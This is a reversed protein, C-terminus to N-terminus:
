KKQQPSSMGLWLVLQLHRLKSCPKTLIDATNYQGPVYKLVVENKEIQERLYHYRIGIHKTRTREIYSSGFCIAAKSDSWIVTPAAQKEPSLEIILKRLWTVERAAESLAIYEAEMSSMAVCDQRISRYLVPAGALYFVMGSISHRDDITRGWDADAFCVLPKETRQFVIGLHVTGKLYRLVRKAAQWHEKRPNVNFQALFNVIFSIDPRTASALYTLCGILERYPVDKMETIEEISPESGTKTLKISPDAPMGLSNSDEMGYQKLLKRVYNAQSMYLKNNEYLFDIGLLYKLPGLYRIDFSKHLIDRLAQRVRENQACTFVDDVFLVQWGTGFEFTKYYVCADAQCRTMGNSIMKENFKKNWQRASQKLGYVGKKLKCVLHEKGHVVFGEPQSMFIEESLDSNLFASNVDYQDIIWGREVAMAIVTRITAIGAVPSYTEFYDIGYQQTYGKAVLRAKYKDVTGDSLTKIRLVWKSEVPTRGPPLESLEWTGLKIQSDYEAQLAKKWLEADESNIAEEYSKPTQLHPLKPKAKLVNSVGTKALQTIPMIGLEKAKKRTLMGQYEVNSNETSVEATAISRQGQNEETVSEEGSHSDENPAIIDEMPTRPRNVETDDKAVTDDGAVEENEKVEETHGEDTLFLDSIDIKDKDVLKYASGNYEEWFVVNRAIQVKQKTLNFIRYGKTNSEYGLMIAPEAQPQLKHRLQKPIQTFCLSGFVKLHRLSPKRGTWLEYPTVAPNAKSTCRNRLYVATNCAEAWFRMPLKASILAARVMTLSTRNFREAVGNQPASFAVTRQHIIGKEQLYNSMQNNCYELGRDTRITKIKCGTQNEVLVQFNKFVEFVESKYKLYYVYVYRTYDDIFSLLYRKNGLSPTRFPGAIDSHIVVLHEKARFVSKKPFPLVNANSICCDSCKFKSRIGRKPLTFGYVADALKLNMLSSVAVHMFRRHWLNILSPNFAKEKVTGSHKPINSELETASTICIEKKLNENVIVRKSDANKVKSFQAVNSMEKDRIKAFVNESNQLLYKLEKCM